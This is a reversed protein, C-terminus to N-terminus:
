VKGDSADDKVASAVRERENKEVVEVEVEEEEDVEDVLEDSGRM